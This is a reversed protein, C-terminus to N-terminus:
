TQSFYGFMTFCEWCCLQHPRWSYGIASIPCGSVRKRIRRGFHIRSCCIYIGRIFASLAVWVLCVLLFPTAMQMTESFKCGDLSGHQCRSVAATGDLFLSDHLFQHFKYLLDEVKLTACTRKKVIRASSSLKKKVISVFTEGYTQKEYRRRKIWTWKLVSTFYREGTHRRAREFGLPRTVDFSDSLM